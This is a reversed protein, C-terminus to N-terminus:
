YSSGLHKLLCVVAAVGNASEVYVVHLDDLADGLGALLLLSGDDQLNGLAGACIGVVVIQYLHHLCGNLVAGLDRDRQMQIVAIGKLDALAADVAAEGRNHDVSRGLGELLVDRQGLLDNLIRMRVANNDLSLQAGQGANLVLDANLGTVLAVGVGFLDLLENGAGATVGEGDGDAGGVARVLESSRLAGAVFLADENRRREAEVYEFLADLTQGAERDNQVTRGGNRLLEDLHDVLVAAVHGVGDADRLILEALRGLQSDALDIDVGIDTQCHGRGDALVKSLMGIVEIGALVELGSTLSDLVHNRM